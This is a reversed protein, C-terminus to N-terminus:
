HVSFVNGYRLDRRRAHQPSWNNAAIITGAQTFLNKGSPASNGALRSFSMALNNTTSGTTGTFIGGGQGSATNGTITVKSLTTTEGALNSYIGAGQPATNNNIVSSQDILLGQLTYIGGGSGAAQNGTITSGHIASVINPNRPNFLFM